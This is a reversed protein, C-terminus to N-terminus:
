GIPLSVKMVGVVVYIVVCRRWGEVGEKGERVLGGWVWNVIVIDEEFRRVM